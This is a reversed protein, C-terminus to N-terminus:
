PEKKNLEEYLSLHNCLQYIMKIWEVNLSNIHLLQEEGLKLRHENILNTCIQQTSSIKSILKKRSRKATLKLYRFICKDIRAM